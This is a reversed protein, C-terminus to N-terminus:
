ERHYPHGSLISQARFLQEVVLGRVLLHPWTLAGLSLVLAARRIVSLDLGDAGGILVAVERAGEDRWRGLMASFAVSSLSQGREDLAVVVAGNPVAALLLAGERRKREGPPLTRREEVERLELPWSLRRAYHDYLDREPGARGRGVGIIVVRM